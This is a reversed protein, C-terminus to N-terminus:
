SNEFM